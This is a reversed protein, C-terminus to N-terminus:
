AESPSLVDPQVALLVGDTLSVAASTGLFENSVGRTTGPALEEDRLPYRLGETRIGRAPGALPLLSLLSGPEGRLEARTRIVTLRATCVM